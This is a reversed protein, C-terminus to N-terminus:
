LCYEDLQELSVNCVNVDILKDEVIEKVYYLKKRQENNLKIDDKTIDILELAQKLSSNRLEKVNRNEWIKARGIESGIHGMQEDFNFRYWRELNM